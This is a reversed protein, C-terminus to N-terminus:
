LFLLVVACVGFVAALAFLAGSTAYHPGIEGDEDLTVKRYLTLYRPFMWRISWYNANIGRKRLEDVIRGFTIGGAIACLVATLSLIISATRM